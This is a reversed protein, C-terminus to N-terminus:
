PNTPMEGLVVTLKVQKNGRNVSIALKDKVKHNFVVRQLTAFDTIKEGNISQIVDGDQMGAAHAPGKASVNVQVGYDVGKPLPQQVGADGQYIVGLWPRSVKGNNVLDTIVRKVTNSPIAFGMGEVQNGSIKVSNIGVVKGEGNVLAGGSNGPNIAADTQLLDIYQQEGVSVTRRTASIIGATVSGYYDEGLPNGIAVALEGVKLKDSDGFQAVTLNDAAIKLVALDTREDTGVLKAAIKRGDSLNVMLQSAGTVVHNNTVIYGRQDFIVGSGMGGTVPAWPHSDSTTGTNDIGVVAPGVKAAITVVPQDGTTVAQTSETAANAPASRNVTVSNVQNATNKYGSNIGTEGSKVLGLVIVGGLVVGIMTHIVNNLGRRFSNNRPEEYNYM